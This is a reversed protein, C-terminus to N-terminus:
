PSFGRPGDPESGGLRQASWCATPNPYRTLQRLLGQQQVVLAEAAQITPNNRLALGEL